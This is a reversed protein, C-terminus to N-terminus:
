DPQQLLEQQLAAAERDAPNRELLRGTWRLAAERDGADRSITALALLLDRDNPQRQQAAQLVTLAEPRRGVSNLAIGYVYAYRASEPALASAKELEALAQATEGGRVQLLGLAHHLEAADPRRELGSELAARAGAEDGRGRLLESLNVYAPTFSADRRIAERYYAEAREAEGMQLRLNGLNVRSEPREANYDQTAVYDAVAADLVRAQEPQLYARPTPALVRGAEARVALLPDSLLPEGGVWRNEIPLRELVRLAAIRVLPSADALAEKLAPASLPSLFGGLELIATARVLEPTEARNAVALLAIEAQPLGARASQFARGWSARPAEAGPFLRAYSEAQWEAGRDSHCGGCASPAGLAAAQGPHPVRLSHDRRPDVVM